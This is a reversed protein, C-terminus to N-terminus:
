PRLAPLCVHFAAGEGPTSEVRIEGDHKTVIGHIIALGLGSNEARPKTTYFPDFMEEQVEAPIGQGRDSVTIENWLRNDKEFSRATVEIIKNDSTTEAWSRYGAFLSKLMPFM